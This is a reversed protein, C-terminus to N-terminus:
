RASWILVLWLICCVRYLWSCGDIYWALASAHAPGVFYSIMGDAMRGPGGRWGQLGSGRTLRLAMPLAIPSLGYGKCCWARPRWSTPACSNESCRMQKWSPSTRLFSRAREVCKPTTETCSM